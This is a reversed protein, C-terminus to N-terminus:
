LYRGMIKDIGIIQQKLSEKEKDSANKMYQEWVSFPRYFAPCAMFSADQFQEITYQPNGDKHVKLYEDIQSEIIAKITTGEKSAQIKLEKLKEPSINLLYSM